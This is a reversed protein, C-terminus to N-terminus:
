IMTDSTLQSSGGLSSTGKVTQMEQEYKVFEEITRQKLSDAEINMMQCLTLM